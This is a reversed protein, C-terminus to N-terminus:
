KVITLKVKQTTNAKASENGEIFVNLNLTISISSKKELQKAISEHIKGDKFCIAFSGDRYDIIEFADKYKADKIQITKVDNLSADAAEFWVLARDNRDKAFMTTGGSGTTLKAAGMKVSLSIQNSKIPEAKGPLKTELQAKYKLVHNSIVSSDITFIGNEAYVEAIVANYNDYIKLVADEDVNVNLYNTYTPKITIATGERIVDLTGTAKITSKVVSGKKLVAVNLKAVPAGQYASITVPYTKGYEAGDKLKIILANGAREIDLMKDDYTLVADNLDFKYNKTTCSVEVVAQDPLDKNLSVKASSLKLKVATRKVSVKATGNIMQGDDLKLKVTLNYSGTPTDEDCTVLINKGDKKVQFFDANEGGTTKATMDEIEFGGSYNKFTPVVIGATEPFSLDLTAAKYSVSSEQKTVKVTVSVEKCGPTKLYVKYTGMDPTKETTTVTLIGNSYFAELDGTTGDTIRIDPDEIIYAADSSTVAVEIQQEAAKNLTVSSKAFKLTPAKKSNKVTLTLEAPYRFGEVDVWLYAKDSSKPTNGNLTLKGDELTLWNPIPTAVNENKRIGTVDVGTIVIEQSQGEYFSNFANIKAKPKPLTKKVTLTLKLEEKRAEEEGKIKVIVTDTYSSKLTKGSEMAKQTPVIQVTRDDLLVLEFLDSINKFQVSEILNSKNELGSASMAVDDTVMLENGEFPHNQPLDLLIEFTAFDDKYLETTVKNTSLQVGLIQVNETVDVRCRSSITYGDVTLEAVVYATGARLATILGNQDFQLIGDNGEASWSLDATLNAPAIDVYLQIQPNEYIDLAVYDQHIHITVTEGCVACVIEGNQVAFEHGLALIVEQAVYIEGCRDCHKGETLGTETCTPAIAEDIVEAHGLADVTEQAVLVENCVSCHKGETLGTNTCDPDVAEDVVETHGLADIVEQAVLIENCVSCHKGETLGTETCTPAVAADIVETHGLADIVTQAVLVENCAFCHKGETLGTEACTPAVAEDVVESHGLADIVTQAVLVENCAACHKGETLGTQTCTPAVAVDTVEKHGPAYDTIVKNREYGCPCIEYTYGNRTCTVEVTTAIWHGASEICNYHIFTADPTNEGLVTWQEATGGFYVDKLNSCGNFAYEDISTISAPIEISVLNSCNYFASMGISTVGAPIEITTLNACNFFTQIGIETLGSPLTISTLGYCGDFAGWGIATVSSPVVYAGRLSAPAAVLKTMDKTFLVGKSDNCYATNGAEVWIGSLNWNEGFARDSIEAVSAPIVISTLAQCGLFVENEIAHLNSPLAIETLKGCLWFTGQGLVLLSSPLTVSTLNYCQSFTYAGTAVVGEGIVVSQIQDRYADWPADSLGNFAYYDDMEGTGSITLTGEEDLEWTLNEGCTGSAIINEDVDPEGGVPTWTITGGYNKMVDATWTPNGAPYYATATVELFVEEGIEPVDGLFTIENLSTCEAFAWNEVIATNAPIVIDTLSDCSAFASYCIFEVSAPITISTLSDCDWFLSKGLWTIGEPITIDTLSSCSQFACDEINTVSEPITISTLSECNSFAYGGIGTVGDPLTVSTLSNCFSFAWMGIDTVGNGIAVNALSTCDYFAYSGIGTVGDEIVLNTIAERCDYWPPNTQKYDQRYNEMDGTGSITLTGEEDLEWTLNEGCTGSIAYHVTANSLAENEEGITIAAWQTANGSYYIDKLNDCRYFAYQEISTVSAPIEISTLNGCVRFAGAGIATVGAPIEITTLGYCESFARSGIETLGSPLTISTLDSCGSFADSGIDTVSAPIAYAGQLSAPVAVLKTMDKTFLVGNSDNCYATNGAEVWIGTLNRNGGFARDVIETVSAPIVISTLAMCYLFVEHEIRQLNSPLAIETLKGCEWFTSQGLVLLSSPLTVSTLNFCQGFAYAGTETVGEGIVVSVIQDKYADWPAVPPDNFAYYDDMAGTGSITLTGADDLEWTLNEGCSGSALPEDEEEGPAPPTYKVHSLNLISDEGAGWLVKTDEYYTYKIGSVTYGAAVSGSAGALFLSGDYGISDSDSNTVDAFYNVDNISVINWMHGGGDMLGTVMYCTVDGKFDTLDCLYQFAKSYGECVVRTDPNGDFVYILQWPDIDTSFVNGWAADWNYNVLDCIEEKYGVLKEYDSKSAYADVIDKARAVSQAAAGTKATDATFPDGTNYNDAVNFGLIIQLLSSGTSIRSATCGSTKEYWYFEFPLDAMLADLVRGLQMSTFGTGTFTVEIDVPYGSLEQGISITAAARQGCAVQKIFTTLADYMLKEDGTLMEGAATGFFSFSNGFFLNAAYAEYLEESTFDAESTYVFEEFQLVEEPKETPAATEEPVTEPQTPEAAVEADVGTTEASQETEATTEEAVATAEAVYPEANEMEEAHVHLPPMYGALMTLVLILSFIRKLM